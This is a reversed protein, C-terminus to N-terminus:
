SVIVIEFFTSIVIKSINTLSLGLVPSHNCFNGTFILLKLTKKEIFVQTECMIHLEM